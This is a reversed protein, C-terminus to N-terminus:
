LGAALFQYGKSGAKDRKDQNECVNWSNPSSALRLAGSSGNKIVISISITPISCSGIKRKRPKLNRRSDKWGNPDLPWRAKKPTLSLLTEVPITFLEAVEDQEITLPCDKPLIGVYPYILPGMVGYFYDLPGLLTIENQPIGLEESTERLATDSLNRDMDERHGGPFCIDGPQWTLASSRVEFLIEWGKPGEILPLLVASEWIHLTSDISSPQSPIIRRLTDIAQFTMPPSIRENPNGITYSIKGKRYLSSFVQCPGKWSKNYLSVYLVLRTVSRASYAAPLYPM